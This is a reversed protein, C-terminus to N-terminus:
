APTPMMPTYPNPPPQRNPPAKACRSLAREPDGPWDLYGLVYLAGMAAGVGALAYSFPDSGRGLRTTTLAANGRRRAAAALCRLLRAESDLMTRTALLLVPRVVPGRAVAQHEGRIARFAM